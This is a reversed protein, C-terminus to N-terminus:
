GRHSFGPHVDLTVTLAAGPELNAMMLLLAEEIEERVQTASIWEGSAKRWVLSNQDDPRFERYELSIKM